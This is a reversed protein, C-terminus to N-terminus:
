EENFEVTYENNTLEIGDDTKVYTMELYEGSDKWRGCPLQDYYDPDIKIVINSDDTSVIEGEVGPNGAENDHITLYNGYEENDALITLHWYGGIYDDDVGNDFEVAQYDGVIQALAAEDVPVYDKVAETNSCSVLMALSIIAAILVIIYKKM